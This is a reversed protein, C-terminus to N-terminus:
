GGEPPTKAGNSGDRVQVTVRLLEGDPGYEAIERREGMTTAVVKVVPRRGRPGDAFRVSEPAEAADVDEVIQGTDGDIFVIRGPHSTARRRTVSGQGNAAARRRSGKV